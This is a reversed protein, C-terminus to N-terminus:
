SNAYPRGRAKMRWRPPRASTHVGRHVNAHEESQYRVFRDIVPKPMQMSAANDLYVLPKGHVTTSLIPFDARIREVDLVQAAAQTM